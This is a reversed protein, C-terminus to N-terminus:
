ALRLAASGPVGGGPTEPPVLVEVSSQIALDESMQLLFHRTRVPHRQEVAPQLLVIRGGHLAVSPNALRHGEPAAFGVPCAALSPMMRLCRPEQVRAYWAEEDASMSDCTAEIGRGRNPFRVVRYNAM